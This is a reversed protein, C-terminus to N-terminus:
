QLTSRLLILNHDESAILKRSSAQTGSEGWLTKMVTNTVMSTGTTATSPQQLSDVPLSCALQQRHQREAIKDGSAGGVGGGCIVVTGIMVHGDHYVM